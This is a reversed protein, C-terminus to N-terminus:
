FGFVQLSNKFTARLLIAGDLGLGRSPWVSRIGGLYAVSSQQCGAYMSSLDGPKVSLRFPQSKCVTAHVPRIKPNDVIIAANFEVFAFPAAAIFEVGSFVGPYFKLNCGSCM